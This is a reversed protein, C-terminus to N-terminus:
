PFYIFSDTADTVNSRSAQFRFTIEQNLKTRKREKKGTAETAQRLSQPKISPNKNTQKINNKHPHPHPQKGKEEFLNVLNLGKNQLHRHSSWLIFVLNQPM